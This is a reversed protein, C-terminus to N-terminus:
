CDGFDPYELAGVMSRSPKFWITKLMEDLQEKLCVNRGNPGLPKFVVEGREIRRRLERESMGSYALAETMDLVAPWTPMLQLPIVNAKSM